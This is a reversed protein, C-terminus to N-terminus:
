RRVGGRLTITVAAQSSFAFAISIAALFVYLRLVWM